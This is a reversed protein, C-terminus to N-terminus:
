GVSECIGIFSVRNDSGTLTESIELINLRLNLPSQSAM